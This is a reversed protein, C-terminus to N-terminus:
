TCARRTLKDVYAIAEAHTRYGDTLYDDGLCPNWRGWLKAVHVRTPNAKAFNISQIRMSRDVGDDWEGSGDKLKHPASM